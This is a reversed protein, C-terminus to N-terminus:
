EWSGGVRQELTIVGSLQVGVRYFGTNSANSLYAYGLSGTIWGRSNFTVSAVTFTENNPGDFTVGSGYDILNVTKTMAGSITYTGPTSYTITCTGSNKVAAMKALQLNSYLDRSASRVRWNPLYSLFNPVAIAAMIGFVSVTILLEIMTFGKSNRM